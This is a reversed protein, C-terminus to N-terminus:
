AIDEVLSPLIQNLRLRIMGFPAKDECILILNFSVKKDSYCRVFINAKELTSIDVGYSGGLGLEEATRQANIILNNALAGVMEMELTSGRGSALLEGDKSFVGAGLFGEIQKFVDLKDVISM